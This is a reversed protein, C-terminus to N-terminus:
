STQRFDILHSSYTNVLGNGTFTFVFQQTAGAALDTITAQGSVPDTTLGNIRAGTSDILQVEITGSSPAGANNQVTITLTVSNLGSISTTVGDLPVTFDTNAYNGTQLNVNQTGISGVTFAYATGAVAVIAVLLVVWIPISRKLIM